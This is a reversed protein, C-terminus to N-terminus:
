LGGRNARMAHVHVVEGTKTGQYVYEGLNSLFIQLRSCISLIVAIHIPLDVL